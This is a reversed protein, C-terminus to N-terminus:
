DVVDLMNEIFIGYGRTPDNVLVHTVAGILCGDQLIPSGSMGQIIGGTLDLLEQDVVKIILNKDQRNLNITEIEIDYSQPGNGDVDCIIEAHGTKISYRDTINCSFGNLWSAAWPIISGYLGSGSNTELKAIVPASYDFCARIEGPSNVEGRKVSMFHAKYMSGSYVTPVISGSNSVSHGLMVIKNEEPIYCTITGIGTFSNKLWCGIAKDGEDSVIPTVNFDMSEGGRLCTVTITEGSCMLRTKVADINETRIGDISYIVDGIDIGSHQAPSVGDNTSVQDFGVVIPGQDSLDFGALEGSVYVQRIEASVADTCVSISVVSLMITMAVVAAFRLRKITKM